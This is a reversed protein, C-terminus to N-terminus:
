KQLDRKAQKRSVTRLRSFLWFLLPGIVMGVLLTLVVIVSVPLAPGAWGLFVISTKQQNELVFILVILILLLSSVALSIRKVNQM